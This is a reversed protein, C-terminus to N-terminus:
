CNRQARHGNIAGNRRKTWALPLAGNARYDQCIPLVSKWEISLNDDVFEKAGSSGACYAGCTADFWSAEAKSYYEFEVPHPCELGERTVIVWPMLHDADFPQIGCV